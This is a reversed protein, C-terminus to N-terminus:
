QETPKSESHQDFKDRQKKALSSRFALRQLVSGYRFGKKDHYEFRHVLLLKDNLHYFGSIKKGPSNVWRIQALPAM